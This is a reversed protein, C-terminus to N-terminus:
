DVWQWKTVDDIGVNDVEVTISIVDPNIDFDVGMLVQTVDAGPHAAAVELQVVAVVPGESQCGWSVLAPLMLGDSLRRSM